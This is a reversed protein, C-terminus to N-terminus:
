DPIGFYQNSDEPAQARDTMTYSRIDSAVTIRYSEFMLERGQKQSYRHQILQRWRSVAEESEWVSLSLLKGAETLSTFRESRVFGPSKELVSKLGAALELYAEKYQDKIVVEFLVYIM